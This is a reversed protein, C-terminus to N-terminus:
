SINLSSQVAPCTQIITNNTLLLNIKINNEALTLHRKYFIDATL